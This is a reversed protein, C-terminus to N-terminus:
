GSENGVSREDPTGGAPRGYEYFAQDVGLVTTTPLGRALRVVEETSLLGGTPNNPTCLFVVRTRDTAAELMGDVDAAGDQRVPVTVLKAGNIAAAKGYSPFSPTLDSSCVDSSWDSIRM